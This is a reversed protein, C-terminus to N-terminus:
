SLGCCPGFAPRRGGVNGTAAAASRCQPNDVPAARMSECSQVVYGPAGAIHARRICSADATRIHRCGAGLHCSRHILGVHCNGWASLLFTTLWLTSVHKDRQHRVLPLLDWRSHHGSHATRLIPMSRRTCSSDQTYTPPTCSFNCPATRFQQLLVPPM